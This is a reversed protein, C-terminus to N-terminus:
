WELIIYYNKSSYGNEYSKDRWHIAESTNQKVGKGENYCYALNHQAMADGGEAGKRIWLYGDETQGLKMYAVGMIGQSRAHGKNAGEQVLEIARMYEHNDIAKRAENIRSRYIEAQAQAKEEANECGTFVGATLALALICLSANRFQKGLLTKM